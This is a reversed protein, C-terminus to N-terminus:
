KPAIQIPAGTTQRRRHSGGSPDWSDWMETVYIEEGQERAKKQIYSAWYKGWAYHATTENDISYLINNYKLSLSLLKDVFMKQFEM